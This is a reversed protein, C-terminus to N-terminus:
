EQDNKPHIDWAKQMASPIHFHRQKFKDFYNVMAKVTQRSLWELVEELPQDGTRDELKEGLRFVSRLFPPLLYGLCGPGPYIGLMDAREKGILHRMLAAAANDLWDKPIQDECFQILARALLRGSESPASQRELIRNLLLRAESVDKPLLDEDIGLSAGIATWTHVYAEQKEDSIDMNFQALGDLVAISFTMLTIAMDEQNVPQGFRQAEWGQKSLFHRISAHILRVKQISQIGTGGKQLAGPTMVDVLFQGTEAIRRTFIELGQQSNTLRSTKVLVEAGNQCSYLLPLSKFYLLLLCKPGHDQFLEHALRVKNWDTWSPLEGNKEVFPKITTPLTELPLEINRILLDFLRRSEEAQESEMILSLTQDALPDAVLRKNDLFPNSWKSSNDM